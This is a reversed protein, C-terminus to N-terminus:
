RWLFLLLFLYVWLADMFHWYLAVADASARRREESYEGAPKRWTRFLLFDLALIGGILHVGHTGTLLYFFSSHPNTNVYVGQGVLQRWAWFQGALFGLGLVVTLLLWRSYASDQRRKLARRALEFTISSLIILATSLWLVRPTALPRWDSAGAARVIYASTLATFMMAIAALAVWMGIRYQATSFERGAEEGRGGHGNGGNGNRPPRGNKGKSSGGGVASKKIRETSTVTTAM